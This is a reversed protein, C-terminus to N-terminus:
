RPRPSTSSSSVARVLFPSLARPLLRGRKRFITEPNASVRPFASGQASCYRYSLLNLRFFFRAPIHLGFQPSSLVVISLLFLSNGPKKKRGEDSGYEFTTDAGGADGAGGPSTQFYKAAAIRGGLGM